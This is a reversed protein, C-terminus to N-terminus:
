FKIGARIDLIFQAAIRQAHFPDQIAAVGSQVDFYLRKGITRQIGTTLTLGSQENRNFRYREGYHKRAGAAIYNASLGNGGKGSRMRRQMNYYWRAEGTLEYGRVDSEFHPTEGINRTITEAILRANFNLSFSSNFLKQEIAISPQFNGIMLKWEGFYDIRALDSLNIKLLFREVDYCKVVPCVKDRNIFKNKNFVLGLGLSATTALNFYASSNSNFFNRETRYGANVGIDILGNGLFRRQMGWRVYINDYYGYGSFSASSYGGAMYNGSMNRVGKRKSGYYWRLQGNFNWRQYWNNWNVEAVGTTYPLLELEVGVGIAPVRLMFKTEEHMMFAYELPSLYRIISDRRNEERLSDPMQSFLQCHVVLILFSLTLIKKM